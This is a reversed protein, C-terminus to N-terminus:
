GPSLNLEKNIIELVQKVDFPKEIFSLVGLEEAKARIENSANATMIVIPISCCQPHRSIFELLEIGSGGPMSIDLLILDPQHRIVASRGMIADFAVLPTYDNKQLMIKLIKSIGMDDEIILVKKNMLIKAM